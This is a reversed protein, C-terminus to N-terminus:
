EAAVLKGALEQIYNKLTRPERGLIASLVLPNGGPFGYKDYDAYMQLLGDRVPGAPLKAQEAWEDFLSEGASISRGLIETMLVTLEIRNTMGPACLEFTGDDLKDSTLAIAAAEAVDRYDVYCVRTQKSYPLSFRDNNVVEGWGNDLTQMFMTPQLVTFILGSEYIAEEVPLKAAHNSLKTLSPHIVGSFVFKEVGANKAAEVMAIGLDAENPAFAPNIHFVGQVGTAAATLSKPDRLDGISTEDAGNEKATRAGDDTRVLARVTAGRKKLEPLVLNAFRGTAGVMLVKM